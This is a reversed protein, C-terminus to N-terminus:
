QVKEVGKQIPAAKSKPVFVEGGFANLFSEYNVETAEAPVFTFKQGVYQMNDKTNHQKIIRQM